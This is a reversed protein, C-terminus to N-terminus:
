RSSLDAYLPTILAGLGCLIQAVGTIVSWFHPFPLWSPILAETEKSYLLHALGIPILSLGFIVRALQMGNTGALYRLRSTEDGATMDAFLVEVGAFVATLEGFGLWVGEIQPAVFLAPVKLLVWCFCYSLLSDVALHYTRGFLLGTAALLLIFGSSYALLTRGPIWSAVPQWNMAFDGYLLTLLSLAILGVALCIVAPQRNDRM